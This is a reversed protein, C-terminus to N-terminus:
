SPRRCRVARLGLGDDSVVSVFGPPCVLTPPPALPACYADVYGGQAYFGDPCAPGSIITPPPPPPLARRVSRIPNCCCRSWTRSSGSRREPAGSAAFAALYAQYDPVANRWVAAWYASEPDLEGIPTTSNPLAAVAAQIQAPDPNLPFTFPPQSPNTEQWPTQAGATAQHAIIRTERMVSEIDTLPLQAATAFAPAYADDADGPKPPSEYDHIEASLGFTTAAPPHLPILGRPFAVASVRVPFRGRATSCSASAVAVADARSREDGKDHQARDAARRSRDRDPRRGAASLRRLRCQRRPRRFLGDGCRRAARGRGQRHLGPIAPALDATGLDHLETVDFGNGALSRAILAADASATPLADGSYAAEGVVLALRNAPAADRRRGRRDGRRRGRACDDHGRHTLARMFM